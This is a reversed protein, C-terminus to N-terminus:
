KTLTVSLDSENKSAFIEMPVMQKLQIWAIQKAMRYTATVYYFLGGPKEIAWNILRTIALYTKGFRRGSCLYTFRVGADYVLKQPETLNSYLKQSLALYDFKSTAPEPPELLLGGPCSDLLLSM